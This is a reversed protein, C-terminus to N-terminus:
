FIECIYTYVCARARPPHLPHRRGGGAIVGGTPLTSRAKCSVAYIWQSHVRRLADGVPPTTAPPPNFAGRAGGRARTHTHVRSLITSLLHISTM